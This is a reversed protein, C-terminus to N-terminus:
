TLQPFDYWAAFSLKDTYIGNGTDPYGNIAPSDGFNTKHLEGFNSQLFDSTFYKKRLPMLSFGGIFVQVASIACGLIILAYEQTIVTKVINETAATM